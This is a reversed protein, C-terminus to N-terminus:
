SSSLPDCFGSVPAPLSRSASTRIKSMAESLPRTFTQTPVDLPAVQLSLLTVMENRHALGRRLPSMARAADAHPRSAARAAFVPSRARMRDGAGSGRGHIWLRARRTAVCTLVARVIRPRRADPANTIGNLGALGPPRGRTGTPARGAAGHVLSPTRAPPLPGRAPRGHGDARPASMSVTQIRETALAAGARRFGLCQLCIRRSRCSAALIKGSTRGLQERSM